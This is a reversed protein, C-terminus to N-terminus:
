VAEAEQENLKAMTPGAKSVAEAQAMQQQQEVAARQAEARSERMEEIQAQDRLAEQPYGYIKAVIKAAKDGDFNDSVAPDLQIFPSVAQLTRAISQGQNVRQSKAIMSSYQVDVRSGQLVEPAQPILNKRAMIDFVRDIMPRLFESQQRGLMPGLFRSKEETIQLVETATKQPGEQMLLQNVYFADRIRQRRENMVEFGFDVRTDNFVPEIRDNSGARYYNLGAPKTVIPMIFGDDPLQLPPDVAKQAGKITTETMMNMMKADPLAIMGPSRGYIEGSAKSWRPVVYPFERFGSELLEFEEEVLIYKSAFRFSKPVPGSIKRPYVSHIIEFKKNKKKNFDDLVSKPVNKEGFEGIIQRSNWQFKRNLEDIEGKNNEGLYFEKIHKASFRVVIEDDDEISMCSTGFCCLDLYNQHVETQFNSNNLVHHILTTVRQLWKRVQDLNDIDPNGTTLEFWEANPNTLLGHLAGALLENSMMATNDLLQINRKNGPWQTSVIDNRNPLIYDALEQWHYEWNSRESEMHRQKEIIQKPSFDVKKM